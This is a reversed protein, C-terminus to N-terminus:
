DKLNADWNIEHGFSIHVHRHHNYKEINDGQLVSGNYVQNFHKNLGESTMLTSKPFLQKLLKYLAYNKETDFVDLELGQHAIPDKWFNINAGGYKDPMGRRRYHTMNFGKLTCYNLDIVSLGDHAGGHGPCHSKQLCGADGLVFESNYKRPYLSCVYRMSINLIELVTRYMYQCENKGAYVKWPTQRQVSSITKKVETREIPEIFDRLKPVGYIKGWGESIASCALYVDKVPMELPVFFRHNGKAWEQHRRISVTYDTDAWNEVYADQRFSNDFDKQITQWDIM